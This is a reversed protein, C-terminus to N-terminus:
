DAADAAARDGGLLKARLLRRLADVEELHFRAILAVYVLTGLGGAVLVLLAQGGFRDPAFLTPLAHPLLAALGWCVLGMPLAALLILGAGAALARTVLGDLARALLIFLIIAHGANLASGAFAIAPMGITGAFPVAVVLWFAIAVAGVLVPTLTNKRAYYAAILVQDLALFPLQYAFNQLALANRVTCGSGCAGHQFLLAVIPARLVFLGVAAPVMLLLGVRFGLALIRRFEGLDSRSAALTLPPLVALSLAVAVLGVPFQVLTLASQLATANAPAGGPTRGILFVEFNQQGLSLLLGAAVPAYLRLIQRVAPHRLDLVPHWVLRARWLAPLLLLAEGAAGLVAGAALGRAGLARAQEVARTAGGPHALAAFPLGAAAAAVGLAVLGCVVVGVHYVGAAFAPAVVERRAYLLASAVAYLGLGFLSFAAIRVLMVTLRQGEPGFNRTEVPVFFPAAVFLALTALAMLLAVLNAVTSAIRRLEERREPAGYDAFTPILAGGVSGAVLLDYVQQIPRLAIVFAGSALGYFLINVVEIRALGLLSSLLQGAMLIAAATLIRGHGLPAHGAPTAPERPDPTM